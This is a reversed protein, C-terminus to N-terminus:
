SPSESSDLPLMFANKVFTQVIIITLVSDPHIASLDFAATKFVTSTCAEPPEFGEGDTPNGLFFGFFSRHGLPRLRKGALSTYQYRYGPNLDGDSRFCSVGTSLCQPKLTKHPYVDPSKFRLTLACASGTCPQAAYAAKHPSGTACLLDGDRCHEPRGSASSGHLLPCIGTVKKMRNKLFFSCFPLLSSCVNVHTKRQKLVM